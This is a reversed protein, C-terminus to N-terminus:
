AAKPLELYDIANFPLSQQLKQHLSIQSYRKIHKGAVAAGFLMETWVEPPAPKLLAEITGHIRLNEHITAALGDEFAKKVTALSKAQVAYDIELGQAFWTGEDEIIVVRLNGIGVINTGDKAKGHFAMASAGHGPKNKKLKAM